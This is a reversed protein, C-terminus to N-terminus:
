SVGHSCGQWIGQLLEGVQLRHGTSSNGGAGEVDLDLEGGEGGKCRDGCRCEQIGSCGAHEYVLTKHLFVLKLGSGEGLRDKHAVYIARCILITYIPLFAPSHVILGFLGLSEQHQVSSSCSILSLCIKTDLEVPLQYM